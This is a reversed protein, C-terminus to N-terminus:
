PSAPGSEPPTAGLADVVRDTQAQQEYTLRALWFRLFQALSYRLFLAAGVITVAIGILGIAIGDLQQRQDNTAAHSLAYGDITLAVGAALLVVGVILLARDRKLAPNRLRLGSVEAKFREVRTGEEYM